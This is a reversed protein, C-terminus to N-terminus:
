TYVYYIHVCEVCVYVSMSVFVHICVCLDVYMPLHVCLFICICGYM